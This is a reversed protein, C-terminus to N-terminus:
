VKGGQRVKTALIRNDMPNTPHHGEKTVMIALHVKNHHARSAMDEKSVMNAMTRNNHVQFFPFFNWVLCSREVDAGM